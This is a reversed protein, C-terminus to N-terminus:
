THMMDSSRNSLIKNGEHMPVEKAEQNTIKFDEHRSGKHWRVGSNVDMIIWM